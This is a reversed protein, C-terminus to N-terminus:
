LTEVLRFREAVFETDDGVDWGPDGLYERIEDAYSRWFRDHAARWDAVSEFGEGENRAFELDCEGIRLVRVETTEIVAVGHDDNDLLLFREGVAPLEDDDREYDVLLGATATKEGRLIAAVLAGRLPTGALGFEATRM